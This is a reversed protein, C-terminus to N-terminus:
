IIWPQLQADIGDIIPFKVNAIFEVMGCLNDSETAAM